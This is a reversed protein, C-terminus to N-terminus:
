RGTEDFRDNVALIAANRMVLLLVQLAPGLSCHNTSYLSGVSTQAGAVPHLAVRQRLWGSVRTPQVVMASVGNARAVLREVLFHRCM